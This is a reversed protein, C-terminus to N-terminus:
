VFKEFVMIFGSLFPTMGRKCVQDRRLGRKRDRDLLGQAHQAQCGRSPQDRAVNKSTVSQFFQFKQSFISERRQPGAFVRKTSLIESKLIRNSCVLCVDCGLCVMCCVDCVYLIGCVRACRVNWFKLNSEFVCVCLFFNLRSNLAGKKPGHWSKALARLLRKNASVITCPM